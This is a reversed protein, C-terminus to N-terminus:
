FTHYHIVTLRNTIRSQVISELPTHLRTDIRIFKRRTFIVHQTLRSLFNHRIISKELRIIACKTKETGM